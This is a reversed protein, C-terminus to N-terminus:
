AIFERIAENFQDKCEINSIHACHFIKVVAHSILYKLAWTNVIPTTIDYYGGIILTPKDIQTLTDTYNCGLPAKAAEIYQDSIYFAKTVEEIYKSNHLSKNVIRDVLTEKSINLYKESANVIKNGIITPIAFTTNCLILGKIIEPKQKYIEMTVLGGLSLGCLYVESIHLHDLLEIVDAAYTQLTIEGEIHSEGHGRLDVAILRYTDSLESLQPEWSGKHSGLGHIFLIPTGKGIDIYNLMKEGKM